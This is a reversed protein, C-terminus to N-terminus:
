IVDQNSPSSKADIAAKEADADARNQESFSEPSKDGKGKRGKVKAEGSEVPEFWKSKAGDPVDFVDGENRLEGGYFGQKTAIVKMM